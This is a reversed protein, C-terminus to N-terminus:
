RRARRRQWFMLALAPVGCLLLVLTQPEPVEVQSFTQTVVSLTTAIPGQSTVSQESATGGYLMIDKVVWVKPFSLPAGSPALFEESFGTVPVGVNSQYVDGSAILHEQQNGPTPEESYVSEHIQVFADPRGTLTVGDMGLGVDKIRYPSSEPSISVEFSIRTDLVQGALTFWAGGLTVGYDEGAVIGAISIDQAAPKITANGSSIVVFNTFLKDGVLLGGERNVDAISPPTFDPDTTNWDWIIAAHGISSFLLVAAVLACGRVARIWQFGMAVEWAM